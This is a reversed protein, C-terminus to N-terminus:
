VAPDEEFQYGEQFVNLCAEVVSEDLGPENQIEELAKETSHAPRWPRHSAMAEVIDAVALIRAELTISEAALGNPYGTGDLREHHQNIIDAIPWPFDINELIERGVRPHVKVLAYEPEALAGPKTLIQSPIQVKGIDHVLAALRLGEIREETLGMERAIACALRAVGKQHGATYPDSSGVASALTEVTGLLAKEYRDEAMKRETIDRGVAQFQTLNGEEDFLARNTWQQWAM